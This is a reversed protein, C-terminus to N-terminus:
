AKRRGTHAAEEVCLLVDATLDPVMHIPYSVTRQKMGTLFSRVASPSVPFDRFHVYRPGTFGQIIRYIVLMGVLVGLGAYIGLNHKETLIFALTFSLPFMWHFLRSSLTWIYTKM